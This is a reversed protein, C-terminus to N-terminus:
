EWFSEDTSKIDRQYLTGMMLKYAGETYLYGNQFYEEVKRDSDNLLEIITQAIQRISLKHVDLIYRLEKRGDREGNPWYRVLLFGINGLSTHPSNPITGHIYINRAQLYNDDFNM